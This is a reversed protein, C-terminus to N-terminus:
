AANGEGCLRSAVGQEKHFQGSELNMVNRRDHPGKKRAVYVPNDPGNGLDSFIVGPDRILGQFQFDRKHMDGHCRALIVRDNKGVIIETASHCCGMENFLSVPM